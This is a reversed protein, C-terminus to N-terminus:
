EYREEPSRATNPGFKSVNMGSTIRVFVKRRSSTMPSLIISLATMNVTVVYLLVKYVYRLDYCCSFLYSSCSLMFLYVRYITFM